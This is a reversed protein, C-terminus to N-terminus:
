MMFTSNDDTDMTAMESIDLRLVNAPLMKADIGITDSNANMQIYMSVFSTVFIASNDCPINQNTIGDNIKKMRNGINSFFFTSKQIDSPVDRAMITKAYKKINNKKFFAPIFM